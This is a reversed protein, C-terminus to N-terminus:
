KIRLALGGDALHILSDEVSGGTALSVLGGQAFMPKAPQTNALLKKLFDPQDRLYNIGAAGLSIPIAIPAAPPYMAAAGAGAGIGGIIAGVPDTKFKDVAELGQAGALAGGVVPNAYRMAYKGVAKAIPTAMELKQAMPSMEKAKMAWDARTFQPARQRVNTDQVVKKAAESIQNASQKWRETGPLLETIKQATGRVQPNNSALAHKMAATGIDKIATAEAVTKGLAAGGLGGVTAYGKQSRIGPTQEVEPKAEMMEAPVEGEVQSQGQPAEQTKAQPIAKEHTMLDAPVEQYQEAM